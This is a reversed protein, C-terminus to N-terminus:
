IVKAVGYSHKPGFLFNEGNVNHFIQKLKSSKIKKTQTLCDQFELGLVNDRHWFSIYFILKDMFNSLNTIM